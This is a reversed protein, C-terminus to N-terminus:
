TDSRPPSPVEGGDEAEDAEDAEDVEDGAGDRCSTKRISGFRVLRGSV